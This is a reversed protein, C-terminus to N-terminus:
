ETEAGEFLKMYTEFLEKEFHKDFKGFQTKQSAEYLIRIGASAYQEAINFVEKEDALIDVSGHEHLAVAYILTKDDAGMYSSLFFGEKTKLERKQENEFGIALALLFQEKQSKDRFNIINEEEAKQYFLRDEKDIYLRDPM